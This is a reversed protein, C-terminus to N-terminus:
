NLRDSIIIASGVISLLTAWPLINNNIWSAGATFGKKSIYITDGPALLPDRSMDGRLIAKLNVTFSDDDGSKIRLIRVKSSKANETVGGALSVLELLRMGERYDYFGPTRIEGLVAVRRGAFRRVNITIQANAVYKSYKQQLLKQLEDSLLGGVKMSGILPLEIKGDPQVTVERSYEDAPFVSISVVDGASVRYDKEASAAYLVTGLGFHQTSLFVLIMVVRLENM